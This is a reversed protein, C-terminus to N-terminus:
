ALGLKITIIVRPSLCNFGCEGGALVCNKAQERMEADTWAGPVIILPNVGGLEAIVPKKLLPKKQKNKERRKV